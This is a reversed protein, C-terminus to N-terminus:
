KFTIGAFVTLSFPVQSELQDGENLTIFFTEAEEGEEPASVVEWLLLKGEGGDSYVTVNGWDDGTALCTYVYSGAPLDKGATYTGGALKATVEIRRAVVEEQIRSMLTVLEDNSLSSFDIEEALAVSTCTMVALAILLAIWKKM